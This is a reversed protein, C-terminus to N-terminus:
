IIRRVKHRSVLNFLRSDIIDRNEEGEAVEELETRTFPAPRTEGDSTVNLTLQESGEPSPVWEMREIRVGHTDARDQLRREITLKGMNVPSATFVDENRPLDRAWYYGEDSAVMEDLVARVEAEPVGSLKVIESIFLSPHRAAVERVRARPSAGESLPFYSKTDDQGKTPTWLLRQAPTRGRREDKESQAM